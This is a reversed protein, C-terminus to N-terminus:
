ELGIKKNGALAAHYDNNYPGFTYHRIEEEHWAIITCYFDIHQLTAHVVHFLEGNRKWNVVVSSHSGDDFFIDNMHQRIINYYTDISTCDQPCLRFFEEKWQINRDTRYGREKNICGAQIQSILKQRRRNFEIDEQKKRKEEEEECKREYEEKLRYEYGPNNLWERHEDSDLLFDRVKERKMEIGRIDIELATYGYKKIKEIKEAHVAHTNRIEILLCTGDDLTATLDPRLDKHENWQEVEVAKFKSRKASVKGYKNEYCPLMVCMEEALIREALNHLINDYCTKESVKPRSKGDAINKEPNHHAFHHIRVEGKKAELQCGCHPCICECALGSEVDDISVLQKFKNLGYTIYPVNM